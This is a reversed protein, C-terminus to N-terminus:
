GTGDGLKFLKTYIFQGPSQFSFPFLSSVGTLVITLLIRVIGDGLLGPSVMLRIGTSPM